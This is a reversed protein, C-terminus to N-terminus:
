RKNSGKNEEYLTIATKMLSLQKAMAKETSSNVMEQFIDEGTRSPDSNSIIISPSLECSLGAIENPWYIFHYSCVGGEINKTVNSMDICVLSVELEAEFHDGLTYRTTASIRAKLAASVQKEFENQTTRGTVAVVRTRSQASAVSSILSMSIALTVTAFGIKMASDKRRGAEDAVRDFFYRKSSRPTNGGPPSFSKAATRKM